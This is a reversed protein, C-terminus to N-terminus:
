EDIEGQKRFLEPKVNIMKVIALGVSRRGLVYNVVDTQGPRFPEDYTAAANNIIWDLGHRQEQESASGSAIAQIARIDQIDYEPPHWVQRTSKPM